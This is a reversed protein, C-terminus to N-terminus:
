RLFGQTYVRPPKVKRNRQRVQDEHRALADLQKDLTALMDSLDSQAKIADSIAKGAPSEADLSGDPRFAAALERGTFGNLATMTKKATDATEALLKLSNKTLAGDDVLKQMLTKVAKGDLSVTSAKAAKVLLVDLQSILDGTRPPM